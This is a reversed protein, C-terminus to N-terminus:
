SRLRWVGPQDAALVGANALERRAKRAATRWRLEGQPSTERDGARLQDGVREELRALADETTLAEGAEDLMAVIHPVLEEPATWRRPRSTTRTTAAPRATGAEASKRATPRTTRRPAPKPPEPAVPKPMGHVCTSLPLDCLECYDEAGAM